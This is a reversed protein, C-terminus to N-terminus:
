AARKQVTISWPGPDGSDIARIRFGYVTGSVLGEVPIRSRSRIAKTEWGGAGTLDATAQVEYSRAGRVPDFAIDVEGEDDGATVSIENPATLVIPARAESAVDFGSSAIKAADGNSLSQVAAGWKAVAADLAAYAATEAAEKANLAARAVGVENTAAGAAAWASNLATLDPQPSPFSPNNNSSSDVSEARLLKEPKTLRSFGLRVKAM